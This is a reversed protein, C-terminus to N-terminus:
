PEMTEALAEDRAIGEVQMVLREIAYGASNADLQPLFEVESVWCNYLFYRRVVQNAENFLEVAADKRFGQLSPQGRQGVEFVKRAWAEFEFDWTIGRELTVPDCKVMGPGIHQINPDGGERHTITDVTQKLASVTSVGLVYREDWKVRFRFNKYPEFRHTNVTFEPM